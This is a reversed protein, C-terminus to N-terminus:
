VEHNQSKSIAEFSKYDIEELITYHALIGPIRLANLKLKAFKDFLLVSRRNSQRVLAAMLVGAEDAALLPLLDAIAATGLGRHRQESTISISIEVCPAQISIRWKSPVVVMVHGVRVGEHMIHLLRFRRIKTDSSVFALFLRTAFACLVKVDLLSSVRFTTLQVRM